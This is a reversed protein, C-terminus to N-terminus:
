YGIRSIVKSSTTFSIGQQSSTSIMVAEVIPLLVKRKSTWKIIFKAVTGGTNDNEEIIIQKSEFPSLIIDENLFRKVLKGQTDYYDITSITIKNELDINNITLTSTLNFTEKKHHHISSYIPLLLIEGFLNEEINEFGYIEYLPKEYPIVREKDKSLKSKESNCSILVVSSVLIFIITKKM